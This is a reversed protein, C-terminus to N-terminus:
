ASKTQSKKLADSATSAEKHVTHSQNEFRELARVLDSIYGNGTHKDAERAVEMTNTCRKLLTEVESVDAHLSSASSSLSELMVRVKELQNETTQIENAQSRTAVAAAAGTIALALGGAIKLKVFWIAVGAPPYLWALGAGAIGGVAMVLSSTWGVGKVTTKRSNAKSAIHEVDKAAGYVQERARNFNTEFLELCGKTNALHKSLTEMFSHFPEFNGAELGSMVKKIRDASHSWEAFDEVSHIFKRASDIASVMEDCSYKHSLKADALACGTECVLENLKIAGELIKQAAVVSATIAGPNAAEILFQRAYEAVTAMIKQNRTIVTYQM